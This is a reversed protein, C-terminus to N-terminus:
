RRKGKLRPFLQETHRRTADDAATVQEEPSQMVLVHLERELEDCRNWDRREGAEAIQRNLDNIRLQAAQLSDPPGPRRYGYLAGPTDPPLQVFSPCDAWPDKLTYLWTLFPEFLPCVRIQHKQLDASALGHPSFLAGEGTQLDLVWIQNRNWNGIDRLLPHRRHAINPFSPELQKEIEDLPRASRRAWDADDYRGLMFKGWNLTTSAEVIKTEM